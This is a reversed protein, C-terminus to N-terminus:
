AVVKVRAPDPPEASAPDLGLVIGYLWAPVTADDGRPGPARRPLAGFGAPSTRIKLAAPRTLKVSGDDVYQGAILWLNNWYEPKTLHDPIAKASAGRLIAQQALAEGEIHMGSTGYRVRPKVAALDDEVKAWTGATLQEVRWDLLTLPQGYTLCRAWYLIAAQGREDPVVSAYVTDCITPFGTADTLLNQAM